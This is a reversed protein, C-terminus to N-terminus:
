NIFVEPNALLYSLSELNNAAALANHQQLAVQSLKPSTSTVMVDEDEEEGYDFDLLKKDFKVGGSQTAENAAEQKKM